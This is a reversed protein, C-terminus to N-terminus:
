WLTEQGPIEGQRHRFTTHGCESCSRYAVAFRLWSETWTHWCSGCPQLSLRRGQLATLPEVACAGDRHHIVAALGQEALVELTPWWLDEDSWLRDLVSLLWAETKTWLPVLQRVSARFADASLPKMVMERVVPTLSEASLCDARNLPNFNAFQRLLDRLESAAREAEMGDIVSEM